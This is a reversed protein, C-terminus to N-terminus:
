DVGSGVESVSPEGSVAVGSFLGAGVPTGPKNPNIGEGVGSRADGVGVGSRADGVGVGSRADGVGVGSRADGVGVGLMLANTGVAVQTM